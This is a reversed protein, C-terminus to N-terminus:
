SEGGTAGMARDIAADLDLGFVPKTTRIGFESEVRVCWPISPLAGFMDIDHHGRLWRYRRADEYDRADAPACLSANPCSEDRSNSDIKVYLHANWALSRQKYRSMAAERAGSRAFFEDPEDADDYRILYAGDTPLHLPLADAPPAAYLTVLRHPAVGKYERDLYPLLDSAVGARIVPEACNFAYHVRSVVRETCGNKDLVAWGYPADCSRPPDIGHDGAADLERAVANDIYGQLQEPAAALQKELEKRKMREAFAAAQWSPYDQPVDQAKRWIWAVALACDDFTPDSSNLRNIINDAEKDGTDAFGEADTPVETVAPVAGSRSRAQDEKMNALKKEAAEADKLLRTAAWKVGYNFAARRATDGRFLMDAAAIGDARIPHDLPIHRQPNDAEDDPMAYRDAKLALLRIADDREDLLRLYEDRSIPEFEARETETTM